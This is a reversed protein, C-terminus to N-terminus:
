QQCERDATGGDDGSGEPVIIQHGNGFGRGEISERGRSGGPEAIGEGFRRWHLFATPARNRSAVMGEQECGRTRALREGGEEPAEVAEELAVRQRRALVALSRLASANGDEVDRGQLREAVIDFSVQSGRQGPERDGRRAFAPLRGIDGDAGAGAVRWRLLAFLNAAVRRVDEDRRGLREVQHKCRAGAFDEAGDVGDDNVLDVGHGPRLAAGM